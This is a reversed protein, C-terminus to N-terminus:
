PFMSVLIKIHVYGKKKTILILDNFLFLHLTEKKKKLKDLLGTNSSTLLRSLAGRKVLSRGQSVLTVKQLCRLTRYM